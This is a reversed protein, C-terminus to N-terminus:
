TVTIEETKSNTGSRNGVTLTVLYTGASPFTHVVTGVGYTSGNINWSITRPFYLSTSVFTYTHGIGATYIFDALPVQNVNAWTQIVGSFGLYIDKSYASDGGNYSMALCNDVIGEEVEYSSEDKTIFEIGTEMYGTGMYVIGTYGAGTAGWILDREYLSYDTLTDEKTKFKYYCLLRVDPYIGTAGQLGTLGRAGVGTLGQSGTYGINGDLGTYGKYGTYGKFGTCGVEGREGQDGQVFNTTISFTSMMSFLNIKKVNFSKLTQQLVFQGIPLKNSKISSDYSEIYKSSKKITDFIFVGDNVSYYINVIAYYNKEAPLNFFTQQKIPLVINSLSLIKQNYLVNGMNIVYDVSGDINKREFINNANDM